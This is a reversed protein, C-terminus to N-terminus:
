ASPTGGGQLSLLRSRPARRLRASSGTAGYRASSGNRFADLLEAIRSRLGAVSRGGAKRLLTKLEAFQQKMPVFKTLFFRCTCCSPTCPKLPKACGPCWKPGAVTIVVTDALRLSPEVYALLANSDNSRAVVGARPRPLKKDIQQHWRIWCTRTKSM